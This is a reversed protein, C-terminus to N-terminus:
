SYEFSFNQVSAKLSQLDTESPRFKILIGFIKNKKTESGFMIEPFKGIIITTVSARLRILGNIFSNRRTM